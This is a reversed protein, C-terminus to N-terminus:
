EDTYGYEALTEKTVTGFFINTEAEHIIEIHQEPRDLFDEPPSVEITDIDLLLGSLAEQTSQIDVSANSSISVKNLLGNNRIDTRIQTAEETLDFTGLSGNFHIKSFQEKTTPGAAILNVYRLSYREVKDIFGTNNLHKLCDLITPKFKEWNMYPRPSVVTVSRPGINVQANDGVFRQTAAYRLNPDTERVEIPLNNIDLLQSEPFKDRIAPYLVGALLNGPRNGKCSFRIEFLAEVIPDHELSQKKLDNTM